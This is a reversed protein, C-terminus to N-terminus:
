PPRLRPTHGPFGQTGTAGGSYPESGDPRGSSRPARGAQLSGPLLLPLMSPAAGGVAPHPLLACPAISCGCPDAAPDLHTESCPPASVEVPNARCLRKAATFQYRNLSVLPPGEMCSTTGNRDISKDVSRASRSKSTTNAKV